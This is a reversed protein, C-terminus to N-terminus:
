GCCGAARCPRRDTRSEVAATVEAGALVPIEVRQGLRKLWYVVRAGADWRAEDGPAYAVDVLAGSRTSSWFRRTTSVTSPPRSPRLILRRGAPLQLPAGFLQEVAEHVKRREEDDFVGMQVKRTGLRAFDALMRTAVETARGVLDVYVVLRQLRVTAYAATNLFLSSTGVGPRSGVVTM